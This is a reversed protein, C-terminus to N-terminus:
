RTLDHHPKQRHGSIPHRFTSRAAADRRRDAEASLTLELAALQARLVAIGQIGDTLEDVSLATAPVQLVRRVSGRAAALEAVALRGDGPRLQSISM